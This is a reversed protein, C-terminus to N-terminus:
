CKRWNSKRVGQHRGQWHGRLCGTTSSRGIMRNEWSRLRYHTCRPGVCAERRTVFVNCHSCLRAGVAVYWAAPIDCGTSVHVALVHQLVSQRTAYGRQGDGRSHACGAIPCYWEEVQESPSETGGMPTDGAEDRVQPVYHDSRVDFEGEVGGDLSSARDVLTALADGVTRRMEVDDPGVSLNGGASDVDMGVGGGPLPARPLGDM